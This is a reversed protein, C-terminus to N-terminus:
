KRIYPMMVIFNRIEDAGLDPPTNAPQPRVEGDLDVTVGLNVGKRNAASWCTIHYGDPLFAASGSFHHDETINGVVPTTNSDWLTYSLSAYGGSAVNIGTTNNAMITNTLYLLASSFVYAGTGNRALTTFQGTLQASNGVV